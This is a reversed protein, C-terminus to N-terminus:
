CNRTKWMICKKQIELCNQFAMFMWFETGQLIRYLQPPQHGPIRSYLETTTMILGMEGEWAVRSCTSRKRPAKITGAAQSCMPNLRSFLSHISRHLSRQTRFMVVAAEAVTKNRSEMIVLSPREEEAVWWRLCQDIQSAMNCVPGFCFHTKTWTTGVTFVGSSTRVTVCTNLLVMIARPLAKKTKQVQNEGIQNGYQGSGLM